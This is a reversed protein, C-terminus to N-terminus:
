HITKNSKIIKADEWGSAMAPGKKDGTRRVFLKSCIPSCYLMEEIIYFHM